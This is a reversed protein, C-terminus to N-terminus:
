LRLPRDDAGAGFELAFISLFHFIEQGDSLFPHFSQQDLFCFEMDIDFSYWDTMHDSADERTGSRCFKFQICIYRCIGNELRQAQLSGLKFDFFPPAFPHTARKFSNICVFQM